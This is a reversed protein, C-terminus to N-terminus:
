VTDHQTQETSFIQGVVDANICCFRCPEGGDCKGVVFEGVPEAGEIPVDRLGVQLPPICEQRTMWSDSVKQELM